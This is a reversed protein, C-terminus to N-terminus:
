APIVRNRYSPDSEVIAFIAAAGGTAYRPLRQDFTELLQGTAAKDEEALALTINAWLPRHSRLGQSRAYQHYLFRREAGYEAADQLWGIATEAAANPATADVTVASSISAGSSGFTSAIASNSKGARRPKRGKPSVLRRPALRSM